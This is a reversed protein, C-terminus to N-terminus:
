AACSGSGSWTLVAATALLAAVALLRWLAPRGWRRVPDLRETSRAM